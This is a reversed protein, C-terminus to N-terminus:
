RKLPGLVNSSQSKTTPSTKKCKSYFDYQETILNLIEEKKHENDLPLDIGTLIYNKYTTM